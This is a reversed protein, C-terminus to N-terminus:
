EQLIVRNKIDPSVKDLDRLRENTPTLSKFQVWTELKALATELIMPM